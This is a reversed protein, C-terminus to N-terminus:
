VIIGKIHEANYLKGFTEKYTLGYSKQLMQRPVGRFYWPGCKICVRCEKALIM